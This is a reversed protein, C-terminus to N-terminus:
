IPPGPPIALPRPPQWPEAPRNLFREIDDRTARRHASEATDGSTARLRESLRRLADTVEARVQDDADRNAALEALRTVLLSRTARTVPGPEKMAIAVLADLMERLPLENQRVLRACRSPDLLALLTIDASTMAAAIPDFAPDTRRPFLETNADGHAYAPPPILDAIRRPITLFEPELTALVAALADRQQKAPVVRPPTSAYTYSVGGISKAAAELQYRHHLYLPLLREELASLPQGADLNRTGFQELAIRRVEIEHRLMAVPDAGNDWVSGLPHAGSVPRSHPDSVFLPTARALEELEAESKVPAYAYRIAAIDYAGVRNTYAESLDLKGNTIKV